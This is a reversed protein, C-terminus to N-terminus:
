ARASPKGSKAAAAASGSRAPTRASGAQCASFKYGRVSVAAATITAADGVGRTLDRTRRRARAARDPVRSSAPQPPLAELPAVEDDDVDGVAADEEADDAPADALGQGLVCVVLVCSGFDLM